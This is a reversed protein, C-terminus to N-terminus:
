KMLVKKQSKFLSTKGDGGCSSCTVKGDGSCVECKHQGYDFGVGSCNSCDALGNGNCDKCRM